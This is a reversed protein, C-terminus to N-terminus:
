LENEWRCIETLFTFNSGLDVGAHSCGLSLYHGRCDGRARAVQQGGVDCGSVVLDGKFWIQHLEGELTRHNNMEIHDLVRGSYRKVSEVEVEVLDLYSTIALINPLYVTM